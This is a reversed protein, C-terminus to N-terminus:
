SGKQGNLIQHLTRSTGAERAAIETAIAARQEAALPPLYRAARAEDSEAITAKLDATTYSPFKRGTKIAADM